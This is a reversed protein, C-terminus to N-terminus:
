EPVTYPAIISIAEGKPEPFSTPHIFRKGEILENKRKQPL